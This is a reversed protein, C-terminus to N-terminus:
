DIFTFNLYAILEVKWIGDVRRSFVLRDDTVYHNYMLVERIVAWRGEIYPVSFLWFSSGKSKKKLVNIGFPILQKKEWSFGKSQNLFHSLSDLNFKKIIEKFEERSKFHIFANELFISDRLTDVWKYDSLIEYYLKVSEERKSAGYREKILNLADQSLNQSFLNHYFLILAVIFLVRM